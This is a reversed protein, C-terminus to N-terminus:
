PCSGHERGARSCFPLDRRGDTRCGENHICSLRGIDDYEFVSIYLCSPLWFEMDEVRLVCVEPDIPGFDLDEKEDPFTFTVKVNGDADTEIKKTAAVEPPLTFAMKVSGDALKPRRNYVIEPIQGIAAGIKVDKLNKSALMVSSATKRILTQLYSQDIKSAPVKLQVSLFM